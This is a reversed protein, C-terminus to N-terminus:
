RVRLSFTSTILHCIWYIGSNGSLSGDWCVIWLSWYFRLPIGLTLFLREWHRMLVRYQTSFFSLDMGVVITPCTGLLGVFSGNIWFSNMKEERARSLYYTQSFLWSFFRVMRTFDSQFRWEERCLGIIPLLQQWFILLFLEILWACVLIIYHQGSQVAIELCLNQSLIWRLSCWAVVCSPRSRSDSRIYLYHSEAQGALCLRRGWLFGRRLIILYTDLILRLM